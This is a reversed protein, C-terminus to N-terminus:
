FAPSVEWLARNLSGDNNVFRLPRCTVVDFVRRVIIARLSFTVLGSVAPFQLLPGGSMGDFLTDAPFREPTWAPSDNPDIECVARRPSAESVSRAYFSLFRLERRRAPTLENPQVEIDGALEYPYGALWCPQDAEADPPPWRPAKWERHDSAAVVVTSLEYTAIDIDEDEDILRGVPDFTHSGLQCHATLGGELRRVLQHHVHRATIGILRAGTDVFCVSGVKRRDVEREREPENWWLPACSSQVWERSANLLTRHNPPIPVM